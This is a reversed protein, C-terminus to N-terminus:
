FGLHGLWAHWRWSDEETCAMYCISRAINTHLVYLRNPAHSIKAVLRREVDRISLIISLVNSDILIQFGIENLQDVSIINTKLKPIFYVKTFVRHEGSRSDFIVTGCGEIRVVSRDSFRVTGCVDADLESFAGRAGTM